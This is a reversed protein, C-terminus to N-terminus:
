SRMLSQIATAHSATAVLLPGLQSVSAATSCNLPLMPIPWAPATYAPMARKWAINETESWTVPLNQEQSTGLGGPGRFQPWNEALSVQTLFVIISLALVISRCCKFM